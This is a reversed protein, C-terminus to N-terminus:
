DLYNYYIVGKMIMEKGEYVFPRFEWRKVEKEIKEKLKLDDAKANAEIVKGDIDVIIFVRIVKSLKIKSEGPIIYKFRPSQAEPRGRISNVTDFDAVEFDTGGQRIGIPMSNVIRGTTRDIGKYKFSKARPSLYLLKESIDEKRGTIELIQRSLKEVLDKRDLMQWIAACSRLIPLLAESKQGYKESIGTIFKEYYPLAKEFNANQVYSDALHYAVTLVIEDNKSLLKELLAFAELYLNQIENLEETLTKWDSSKSSLRIHSGKFKALEFKAIALTVNEIKLEQEYIKISRKLLDELKEANVSRLKLFEMREKVSFSFLSIPFKENLADFIRKRLIAFDYATKALNEADASFQKNKNKYMDEAKSVVNNIEKITIAPSIQNSLDGFENSQLNGQAFALFSLFLSLVTVQLTKKM